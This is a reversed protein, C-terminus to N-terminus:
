ANREDTKRIQSGVSGGDNYTKENIDSYHSNFM